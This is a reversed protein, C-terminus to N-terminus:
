SYARLTEIPDRLKKPLIGKKALVFLADASKHLEAEFDSSISRQRVRSVATALKSAIDTAEEMFQRKEDTILSVLFPCIAKFAELVGDVSDLSPHNKIQPNSGFNFLHPPPTLNIRTVRKSEISFAGVHLPGEQKPTDKKTFVNLFAQLAAILLQKNSPKRNGSLLTLFANFLDTCNACLDPYSNMLITLVSTAFVRVSLKLHTLARLTHAILLAFHSSMVRPSSACLLQLLARLQARSAADSKDDAILRGIAPILTRLHHSILQPHSSLLQRAGIIADNRVKINYHGLQRCLEDLSLGRHSVHASGSASLQELLVVKFQRDHAGM